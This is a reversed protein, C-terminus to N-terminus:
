PEQTTEHKKQNIIQIVQEVTKDLHGPTNEVVFDYNPGFNQWFKKDQAMRKQIQSSNLGRNQLRKIITQDDTTLFIVVVRKLLKESLFQDFAEKIFQRIQGARSPDIRWILNQGLAKTIEVKETGYLNGGYKVYEIFDKSQIKGLFQSKSIFNYDKNTEGIRLPRSTTTLVRTLNPFETMLKKMVTDKGSATKGTLIILLPNM